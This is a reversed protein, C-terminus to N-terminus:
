TRYFCVKVVMIIHKGGLLFFNSNEINEWSRPKERAIEDLNDPDIPLVFIPHVYEISNDESEDKDKYRELLLRYVIHRPV